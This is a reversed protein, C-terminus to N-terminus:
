LMYFKAIKIFQSNICDVQWVNQTNLANLSFILFALIALYQGDSSMLTYCKIGNKLCLLM